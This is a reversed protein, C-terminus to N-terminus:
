TRRLRLETQRLSALDSYEHLEREAVCGLHRKRAQLSQHHVFACQRGIQFGGNGLTGLGCAEGALSSLNEFSKDFPTALQDPECQRARAFGISGIAAGRKLSGTCSQGSPKQGRAFGGNRDLETM